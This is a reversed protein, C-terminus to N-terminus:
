KKLVKQYVKATNRIMADASFYKVAKRRANEGRKKADKGFAENLKASLEEVNGPTFLYGDKDSVATPVSGINSVVVPKGCAMAELITLDYGNQRITANVFVDCSNFLKPLENLKKYGLFFVREGAGEKKALKELKDRYPGDGVVFLKADKPLARIVFQVGKEEILRCVALIRKEKNKKPAPRFLRTDIGNYVLYLKGKAGYRNELIKYQENSTAIIADAEAAIKKGKSIFFYYHHACLALCRALSVPNAKFYTNMATKIEDISTGHFSVVMPVKQSLKKKLLGYGAASQSHIIDFNKQWNLDLFKAAAGDWYAKDYRRWNTGPLFHVNVGDILASTEDEHQCTIVHVEHGEKVLGKCLTFIHDEMGGKAHMPLSRALMCIRM